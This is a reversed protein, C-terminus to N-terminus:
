PSQPCGAEEEAQSSIHRHERSGVDAKPSCTLSSWCLGRPPSSQSLFLTYLRSLVPSGPWGELWEQM